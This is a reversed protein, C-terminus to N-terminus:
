AENNEIWIVRLLIYLQFKMILEIEEFYKLAWFLFSHLIIRFTNDFLFIHMMVYKYNANYRLAALPFKFPRTGTYITMPCLKLTFYGPGSSPRKPLVVHIHIWRTQAVKMRTHSNEHTNSYQYGDTSVRPIYFRLNMWMRLLSDTNNYINSLLCRLELIWITM